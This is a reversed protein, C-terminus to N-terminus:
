KRAAAERETRSVKAELKRSAAERETRSVKAELEKIRAQMKSDHQHFRAVMREREVETQLERGKAQERLMKVQSLADEVEGASRGAGDVRGSSEEVLTRLAHNPAGGWSAGLFGGPPGMGGGVGISGISGISGSESTWPSPLFLFSGGGQLDNAQPSSGEGFSSQHEMNMHLLMSPDSSEDLDLDSGFEGGVVGGGRGSGSM